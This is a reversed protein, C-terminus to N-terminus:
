IQFKLEFTEILGFINPAELNQINTRFIQKKNQNIEEEIDKTIDRKENDENQKSVIVKDIPDRNIIFPSQKNKFADNIKKTIKDEKWILLNDIDNILSSSSDHIYDIFKEYWNFNFYSTIEFIGKKILYVGTPITNQKFVYDDKDYVQTIFGSILRFCKSPPWYRFIPYNQKFVALEKNIRQEEIDKVIKTYNNKEISIMSCKELAIISANRPENKILAMEGFCSGPNGKGLEREEEVMINLALTSRPIKTYDFDISILKYKDIKSNYNLIREFKPMNKEIDRIHVLYEVYDRLTM